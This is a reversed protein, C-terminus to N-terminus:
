AFVKNYAANIEIVKRVSEFDNAKSAAAAIKYGFSIAEKQTKHGCGKGCWQTHWVNGDKSVYNDVYFRTMYKYIRGNHRVPYANFKQPNGDRATGFFENKIKM